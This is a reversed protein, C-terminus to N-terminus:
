FKTKSLRFAPFVSINSKGPRCVCVGGAKFFGERGWKQENQCSFLTLHDTFRSPDGRVDPDKDLAEKLCKLIDEIKGADRICWISESIFKDHVYSNEAWQETWPRMEKPSASNYISLVSDSACWQKKPALDPIFQDVYLLNDNSFMGLIVDM